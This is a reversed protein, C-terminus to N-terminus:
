CTKELFGEVDQGLLLVRRLAHSRRLLKRYILNRITRESVSLYAAAERITYTAKTPATNKMPQFPIVGGLAALPRPVAVFIAGWMTRGASM